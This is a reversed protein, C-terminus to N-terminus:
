DDENGLEQTGLVDEQGWSLLVGGELWGDM